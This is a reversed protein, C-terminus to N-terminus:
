LGNQEEEEEVWRTKTRGGMGNQGYKEGNKTTLDIKNSLYNNLAQPAEMYVWRREWYMEKEGSNERWCWVSEWRDRDRRPLSDVLHPFNSPCAYAHKYTTYTFSTHHAHIPGSSVKQQQKRRRPAHINASINILKWRPLNKCWGYTMSKLSTMGFKKSSRAHM